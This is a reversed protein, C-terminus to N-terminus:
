KGIFGFATCAPTPQGPSPAFGPPLVGYASFGRDPYLLFNGAPAGLNGTCCGRLEWHVVLHEIQVPAAGRYAFVLYPPTGPVQSNWTLSCDFKSRLESPVGQPGTRPVVPKFQLNPLLTVGPPLQAAGAQTGQKEPVAALAAGAEALAVLSLVAVRRARM